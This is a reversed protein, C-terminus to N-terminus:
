KKIQDIIDVIPLKFVVYGYAFAQVRLLNRNRPFRAGPACSHAISVSIINRTSCRAIDFLYHKNSINNM